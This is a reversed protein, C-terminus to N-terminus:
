VFAMCEGFTGGFGVRGQQLFALADESLVTAAPIRGQHDILSPSLPPIHIQRATMSRPSQKENRACFRVADGSVEGAVVVSHYRRGYRVVRAQWTGFVAMVDLFLDLPPRAADAGLICSLDTLHARIKCVVLLKRAYLAPLVACSPVRLPYVVM